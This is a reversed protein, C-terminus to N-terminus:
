FFQMDKGRKVIWVSSFSNWGDTPRDTGGEERVGEERGGGSETKRGGDRGGDRGEKKGGERGGM